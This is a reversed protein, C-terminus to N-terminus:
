LHGVSLLYREQSVLVQHLGEAQRVPDDTFRSPDDGSWLPGLIDDIQRQLEPRSCSPDVELAQWNASPRPTSVNQEFTEEEFTSNEQGSAAEGFDGFDGFDDDGEDGSAAITEAPTGFNDFDDFGDQSSSPAPSPESFVPAPVSLSIPETAGWVSAGFDLEDDMAYSLQAFTVLAVLLLAGRWIRILFVDTHLGVM